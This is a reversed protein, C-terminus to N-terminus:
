NITVLAGKIATTGGGQVLANAAGKISVSAAAQADINGTSQIKINGGKITVNGSADISVYKLLNTLAPDQVTATAAVAAREVVASTLAGGLASVAIVALIPMSRFSPKM